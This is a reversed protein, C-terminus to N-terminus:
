EIPEIERENRVTPSTQELQQLKWSNLEQMVSDLGYFEPVDHGAQIKEITERYRNEFGEITPRELGLEIIQNISCESLQLLEPALRSRHAIWELKEKVVALLSEREHEVEFPKLPGPLYGKDKMPELIFRNIWEPPANNQMIYYEGDTKYLVHFPCDKSNDVIVAEESLNLLEPINEMSKYYRSIIKDQPVDHGGEAVRKSVREINISPDNTGVFISYIDYGNEKSELLSDIKRFDSLVTEFAFDEGLLIRDRRIEEAKPMAYKTYREVVNEIHGYYAEAIMDPNVFYLDLEEIVKNILTSKGSGNPGACVLIFM